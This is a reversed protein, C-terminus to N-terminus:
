RGDELRVGRGDLYDVQWTPHVPVTEGDLQIRLRSGDFGVITASRGQFTIERDLEAPVGYYARIYSGDNITTM